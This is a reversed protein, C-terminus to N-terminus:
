IHATTPTTISYSSLMCPTVIFIPKKIRNYVNSPYLCSWCGNGSEFYRDRRHNRDHKRKKLILNKKPLFGSSHRASPKIKPFACFLIFSIYILFRMSIDICFCALQHRSIESYTLVGHLKTLLYLLKHSVQQGMKLRGERGRGRGFIMAFIQLHM